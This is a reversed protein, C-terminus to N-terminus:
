LQLRFCWYWGEWRPHRDVYSCEVVARGIRDTHRFTVEAFTAQILEGHYNECLQATLKREGERGFLSFILFALPLFFSFAPVAIMRLQIPPLTTRGKRSSALAIRTASGIM